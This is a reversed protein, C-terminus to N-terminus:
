VKLKEMTELIVNNTKTKLSILVSDTLVLEDIFGAKYSYFKVKAVYTANVTDLLIEWYGTYQAKPFNILKPETMASWQKILELGEIMNTSPPIVITNKSKVEPKNYWNAFFKM